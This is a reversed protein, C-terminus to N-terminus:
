RVRFYAQLAAIENKAYKQFHTLYAKQAFKSIFEPESRSVYTQNGNQYCYFEIRKHRSHVVLGGELMQALAKNCRTLNCELEQLYSAAQEYKELTLANKM